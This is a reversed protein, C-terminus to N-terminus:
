EYNKGWSSGSADAVAKIRARSAKEEDSYQPKQESGAESEGGLARQHKILESRNNEVRLAEVNKELRENLLRANEILPTTEYKDGKDLNEKTDGPEEKENTKEEDM